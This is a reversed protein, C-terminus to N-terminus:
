KPPEPPPPLPQWYTVREYFSNGSFDAWRGESNFFAWATYHLGDGGYILYNGIEEPLREDVPIWNDARKTILEDIAAIDDRDCNTPPLHKTVLKYWQRLQYKLSEMSEQERESM